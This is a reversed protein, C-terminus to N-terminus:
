TLVISFFGLGILNVGFSPFGIVKIIQTPSYKSCSCLTRILERGNISSLSSINYTISYGSLHCGLKLFEVGDHSFPMIEGFDSIGFELHDGNYSGRINNDGAVTEHQM